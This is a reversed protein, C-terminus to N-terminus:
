INRWATPSVADALLKYRNEINTGVCHTRIFEPMKNTNYHTEICMEKLVDFINKVECPTKLYKEGGWFFRYLKDQQQLQLNSFQMSRSYFAEHFRNLIDNYFKDDPSRSSLCELYVQKNMYKCFGINTGIDDSVVDDALSIITKLRRVFKPDNRFGASVIKAGSQSFLDIIPADIDNWYACVLITDYKDAYKKYVIDFLNNGVKKDGLEWSHGPFALLVKGLKSKMEKEKELSYYPKSYHIYPGLVFIPKWPDIKHVENKRGPGQCAYSINNQVYSWKAEGFRVGHELAPIYILHDKGCKAYKTLENYYGYHYTEGGYRAVKPMTISRHKLLKMEHKFEQFDIIPDIKHISGTLTEYRKSEYDLHYIIEKATSYLLANSKIKDLLLM